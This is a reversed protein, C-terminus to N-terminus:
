TVEVVDGGIDIGGDFCELSNNLRALLQHM